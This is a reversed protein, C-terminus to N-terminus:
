LLHISLLLLNLSQHELFNCSFSAFSSARISVFPYRDRLRYSSHLQRDQLHFLFGSLTAWGSFGHAYRLRVNCEQWRCHCDRLEKGCGSWSRYDFWDVVVGVVGVWSFCNQLWYNSGLSRAGLCFGLSAFSVSLVFVCDAVFMAACNQKTKNGLPVCKIM